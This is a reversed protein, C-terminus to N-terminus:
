VDSESSSMISRLGRCPGRRFGQRFIMGQGDGLPCDLDFEDQIVDRINEWSEGSARLEQMRKLVDLRQETRAIADDLREDLEEDTFEPIQLEIGWEELKEKIAARIEACTAGQEELNERLEELEAIQIEDLDPFVAPRGHMPRGGWFGCRLTDDTTGFTQASAIVAGITTILMVVLLGGFLQKKTTKEM